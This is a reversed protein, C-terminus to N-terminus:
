MLSTIELNNLKQEGVMGAARFVALPTKIRRRYFDTFKRSKSEEDYERCYEDLEILLQFHSQFHEKIQQPARPNLAPLEKALADRFLFMRTTVKNEKCEEFSTSDIPAPLDVLLNWDALAGDLRKKMEDLKEKREFHQVQSKLHATQNALETRTEKAESRTVRLTQVVMVVTALGVIPNVVGGIYDGFQGWEARTGLDCWFWLHRFWFHWVYVVVALLWALIAAWIIGRDSRNPAPSSETM